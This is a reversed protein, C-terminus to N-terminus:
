STSNPPFANKLNIFNSSACGGSSANTVVQMVAGYTIDSCITASGIAAALTIAVLALWM